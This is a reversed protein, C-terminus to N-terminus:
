KKRYKVPPLLLGLEVMMKRGEDMEDQVVMFEEQLIELGNFKKRDKYYKKSNTSNYKKQCKRCMNSYGDRTVVSKGFEKEEKYEKCHRCKIYMRGNIDKIREIGKRAM